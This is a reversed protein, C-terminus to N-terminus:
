ESPSSQRQLVYWGASLSLLVLLLALVALNPSGASVSHTNSLQIATPSCTAPITARQFQFYSGITDIDGNKDSGSTDTSNYTKGSYMSSDYEGGGITHGSVDTDGQEDGIREHCGMGSCGQGIGPAQDFVDWDDGNTNSDATTYAGVRVNSGGPPTCTGSCTSRSNAIGDNTWATYGLAAWPISFEYNDVARGFRASTSTPPVDATFLTNLDVDQALTITTPSQWVGSTNSCILQAQDHWILEIVCDVDWGKFNVRRSSPANATEGSGTSATVATNSTLIPVDIPIFLNARDAGGSVGGFIHLNDGRVHVHLFYADMRVSVDEIDAGGSHTTNTDTLSGNWYQHAGSEGSFDSNTNSGGMYPGAYRSEDMLTYTESSTNGNLTVGSIVGSCSNVSTIATTTTRAPFSICQRNNTVGSATPASTSNCNLQSTVMTTAANSTFDATGGWCSGSATYSDASGSTVGPNWFANIDMLRGGNTNYFTTAALRVQSNDTLGSISGSQAAPIHVEMQQRITEVLVVTENWSAGIQTRSNNYLGCTVQQAGSAFCAVFYDAPIKIDRQWTGATTLDLTPSGLTGTDIFFLYNPTNNDSGGYQTNLSERTDLVINFFWEGNTHSYANFDLIDGRQGQAGGDTNACVADSDSDAPVSGYQAGIVGDVAGDALVNIVSGLLLGVM